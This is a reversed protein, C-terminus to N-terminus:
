IERKEFSEGFFKPLWVEDIINREEYDDDTMSDRELGFDSRDEEGTVEALYDEHPEETYKDNYSDM